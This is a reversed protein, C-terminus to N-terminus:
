ALPSLPRFEVDITGVTVVDGPALPVRGSIRSGNLFTGNESGLDQVYVRSDDAEIATHRRSVSPHEIVIENGPDRGAILRCRPPVFVKERGDVGGLEVVLVGIAFQRALAQARGVDTATADAYRLAFEDRWKHLEHRAQIRVTLYSTAAANSGPSGRGHRAAVDCGGRQVAARRGSSTPLPERASSSGGSGAPAASPSPVLGTHSATV